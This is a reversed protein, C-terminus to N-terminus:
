SWQVASGANDGPSNQIGLQYNLQVIGIIYCLVNVHPSSTLINLAATCYLLAKCLPSRSPKTIGEKFMGLLAVWRRWKGFDILCNSMFTLENFRTSFHLHQPIQFLFLLKKVGNSILITEIVHIVVSIKLKM